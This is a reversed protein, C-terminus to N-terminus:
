RGSDRIQKKKRLLLTGDAQREVEAGFATALLNAFGELDDSRFRGGVRMQALEPDLIVVRRGSRREFEGGIEALTAGGLRMVSDHWALAQAMAAADIPKVIIEPAAPFAAGVAAPLGAAMVARHGAEVLRAAGLAKTDAAGIADTTVRVSGETVIVEVQAANLNVNFATGVARVRAVGAFVVFPRASNKVVTFHAEGRTLRVRREEVSFEEVVEGGANLRVLSGDGLTVSRPGAALLAPSPNPSSAAVLSALSTEASERRLFIFGFVVAAAALLSTAAFLRRHRRTRARAAELLVDQAMADPLRDLLSWAVGARKMAAAHRADAAIWLELEISEAASLGRDRRVQWRAATERIAVLDVAPDPPAPM